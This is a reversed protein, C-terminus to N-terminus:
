DVSRTLVMVPIRRAAARTRYDEYGPYIMVARRWLREREEGEAERATYRGSRRPALVEATPHARLNHYWGPNRDTGVRSAIVAITDGEAVYVLPTSHRRGTRAGTTTLLLVPLGLAVSVRGGSLRMLLRDVRNAVTLILWGAARSRAIVRILRERLRLWWSSPSTPRDPPTPTGM